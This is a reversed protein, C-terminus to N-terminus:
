SEEKATLLPPLRNPIGNSIQNQISKSAKAQCISRIQSHDVSPTNGYCSTSLRNFSLTLTHKQLSSHRHYAMLLENIEAGTGIRDVAGEGGSMHAVVGTCPGPRTDTDALGGASGHADVGTRTCACPDTGALGSGSGLKTVRTRSGFLPYTGALWGGWGLTEVM